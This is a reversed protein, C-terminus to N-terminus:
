IEEEAKRVELHRRIRALTRLVRREYGRGFGNYASVYRDSWRFRYHSLIRCAAIISREVNFLDERTLGMEKGWVRHNIQMVGYDGTAGVLNTFRSEVFGLALVLDPDLDYEPALKFIHYIAEKTIREDIGNDLAKLARFRAMLEPDSNVERVLDLAETVTKPGINGYFQPSQAPKSPLVSALRMTQGMDTEPVLLLLVTLILGYKLQINM